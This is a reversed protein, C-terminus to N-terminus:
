GEDGADADFRRNEEDTRSLRQAESTSMTGRPRVRADEFGWQDIDIRYQTRSLLTGQCLREEPAAESAEDVQRTLMELIVRNPIRQRESPYIYGFLVLHSFLVRWHEDFLDLLHDWDLQDAQALLTHAIDAGDFREREMIFAKSWIFEEPALVLAEIGLMQQPVSRAFWQDDVSALGNGSNFILDISEGERFVKAIWVPSTMETVFGEKEMAKLMRPVDSQRVFLDLDKTYRCVDTYCTLAFAGGVLFPLQERQLIELVQRYFDAAQPRLETALADTSHTMNSSAM